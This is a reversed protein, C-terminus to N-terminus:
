RGCNLNENSRNKIIQFCIIWLFWKKETADYFYGFWNKEIWVQGAHSSCCKWQAPGTGLLPVSWVIIINEANSIFIFLVYNRLFFYNTSQYSAGLLKMKCIYCETVNRKSGRHFGVKLTVNKWSYKGFPISLEGCLENGIWSVLNTRAARFVYAYLPPVSYAMQCWQCIWLCVRM